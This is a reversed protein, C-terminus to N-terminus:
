VSNVFYGSKESRFQNEKAKNHIPMGIQFILISKHKVSLELNM